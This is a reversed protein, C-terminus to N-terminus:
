ASTRGYFGDVIEKWMEKAKAEDKETVMEEAAAGLEEPSWMRGATTEAKKVIWERLVRVDDPPLKEIALEIETVTSMSRFSARFGAGKM